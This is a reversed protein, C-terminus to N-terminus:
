LDRNMGETEVKKKYDDFKGIIRCPVGAAVVGDPITKNVLSGVGVIVNNGIKVDYLITSNAGIFVNDGLKIEGYRM